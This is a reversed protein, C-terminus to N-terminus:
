SVKGWNSADKKIDLEFVDYNGKSIESFVEIINKNKKKATEIISKIIAYDKACEIKGFRKSVNIKM